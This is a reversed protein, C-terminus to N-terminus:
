FKAVRIDGDHSVSLIWSLTSDFIEIDDPGPYWIDNFYECLDTLMMEDIDDFQYWNIYVIEAPLINLNDFLEAFSFEDKGANAGEVGQSRMYLANMIALKEESFIQLIDALRRCIDKMNPPTLPRYWPFYSGPNTKRFHDIKFSEM